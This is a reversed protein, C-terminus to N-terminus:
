EKTITEDLNLITSAVTTWAALESADWKPSYPSEGVKLLQAAADRDRRYHALERQELQRLVQMERREPNRATALRFAYSIRKDPDRGAETLTRLALARGAEVYTPDNMLELAQLPSNTMLRRATCKERDPADFTSLSPPPVTRKWITYMSRRYLDKGTSPTYTQGSFGEGFAMEEWLGKPQYPYASPGGVQEDLLGSAALANDRVEEAPLRFRPGRAMLRNEPDKELSEPTVRSSQRYTASTVILRQMRKVDWGTRVFETALWDLLEPHSPPEGQSGFDESTKVIGVGFYNQWYRNVVVRATLPNGPDVLWKALTLRNPPAGAPLPPLFAPTGPTVKEGPNDYQGRGLVFTDRPKKMEAMVMTTPISQELKEKQARLDKLQAYRQRYPEPAQLSLFYESLRAQHNKIQDAEKEEKSQAKDTMGIDAEEAPKEPQLSEIKEVPKGALEALLARAPLQVALNTAENPTLARDYTRLDDIQGKFPRGIKKDGVSLAAETRFSGSLHDKVAETQLPKGDLYLSVGSARGSGDYNLLLHRSSKFRVREKTKVEIGDGPWRSALRVILTFRPRQPGDFTPDDINIEYGRWNPSADHKQILELSKTGDPRAWFALAFPRDRDFNGANAFDVQTEGSFEAAKGVAGDEYVVDGRTIKGDLGHGSSDALTGEFEYHAALGEAPPEPLTALGSQRWRNELDVMDKEPIAALTQAIQHNLDDLERQELPTPLQLLPAANGAQGDLGREPLTNFFAFFRYFDKQKIPDFKHDHCRACGMTLGLWATSTTSVRDVVYEVHYEQPIAGGEFNIMNNRNFGTAIKQELTANPLLDGALQEVTFRDYPMNQNYANIVWDRWRWMDRLSDIHYGHTDAYRALDLWPMAMKEGYHPSALLQDVKKEYADPTKDALFAEVEAVTPPLGILDFNLRRLLTVRDAEPSPKLGERELRALVFNDIPNRVWSQEKVSPVPSRNPSVYAWHVEWPAGEDIWRRILEIQEATLTRGSSVPPMRFSQDRSSIKQYLKSAPSNGPVIVRYGGRDAFAGEKTDLRLNAQRAQADPGHCAFCKDSLIPRIQRDFDVAKETAPGHQNVPSIPLPPFLSVAGEGKEEKGKEGKEVELAEGAVPGRAGADIWAKLTAIDAAPLPDAGFPMRPQIKGELMLLLRSESSRSPTIAPGHVGGKLLSDYTELVLGGMKAAASHCTLCKSKLIPEVQASYSPSSAPGQTQPALGASRSGSVWGLALAAAVLFSAMPLASGSFQEHRKQKL